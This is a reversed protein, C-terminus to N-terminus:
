VLVRYWVLFFDLCSNRLSTTHSFVICGFLLRYSMHFIITNKTAAPFPYLFSAFSFLYSTHLKCNYLFLWHSYSCTPVPPEVVQTALAYQKYQKRVTPERLPNVFTPCPFLIGSNVSNNSKKYRANM